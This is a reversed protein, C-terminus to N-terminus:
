LFPYLIFSNAWGLMQDTGQKGVDGHEPTISNINCAHKRTQIKLCM